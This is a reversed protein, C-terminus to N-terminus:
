FATPLSAKLSPSRRMDDADFVDGAFLSLSLPPEEGISSAYDDGILLLFSSIVGLPEM